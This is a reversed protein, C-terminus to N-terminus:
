GKKEDRNMVDQRCAYVILSAKSWIPHFQCFTPLINKGQISPTKPFGSWAFSLTTHQTCIEQQIHVPCLALIPIEWGFRLTQNSCLYPEIPPFPGQYIIILMCAWFIILYRCYKYVKTDINTATHMNLAFISKANIMAFQTMIIAFVSWKEEYCNKTLLLSLSKQKLM